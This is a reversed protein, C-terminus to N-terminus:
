ETEFVVPRIQFESSSSMEHSTGAAATAGDIVESQVAGFSFSQAAPQRALTSPVPSSPPPLPTHYVVVSWCVCVCVCSLSCQDSWSATRYYVLVVASGPSRAPRGWWARVTGAGPHVTLAREASNRSDGLFRRRPVGIDDAGRSTNYRADHM